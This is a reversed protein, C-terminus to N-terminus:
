LAVGKHMQIQQYAPCASYRLVVLWLYFVKKM